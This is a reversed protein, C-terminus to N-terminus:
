RAVAAVLVVPERGQELGRGVLDLHGGGDVVDGGAELGGDVGGQWVRLRTRAASVTPGPPAAATSISLALALPTAATSCM